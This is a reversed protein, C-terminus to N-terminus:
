CTADLYGFSRPSTRPQPKNRPMSTISSLMGGPFITAAAISSPSSSTLAPFFTTRNTGGRMMESASILCARDMKSAATALTAASSPRTLGQIHTMGTKSEPSPEKM